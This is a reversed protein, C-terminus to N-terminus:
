ETARVEALRQRLVEPLGAEIEPTILGVSDMDQVHVRDKLRFTGLKMRVLDFVPALLAGEACIVPERFTEGTESILHIVTREPDQADTLSDGDPTHEYRFGRKEAAIKVADIRAPDVMVDIDRTMRGCGSDRADVHFFVAVGGVVRYPIGAESLARHIRRLKEFLQEVHMDYARITIM